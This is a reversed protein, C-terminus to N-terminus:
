LRRFASHLQLLSAIRGYLGPGDMHLVIGNTGASTESAPRRLDAGYPLRNPRLEVDADVGMALERRRQREVECLPHPLVAGHEELLRGLRLIQVAKGPQSRVSPDRQRGPLTQERFPAEGVKAGPVQNGVDLRINDVATSLMRSSTPLWTGPAFTPSAGNRSCVSGPRWRSGLTREWGPLATWIRLSPRSRSSCPATSGCGSQSTSRWRRRSSAMPTSASTSSRGLRRGYPASRRRGALSVEAPVFPITRWM